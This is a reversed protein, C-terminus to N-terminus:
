TRGGTLRAKRGFGPEQDRTGTFNALYCANAGGCRSGIGLDLSYFGDEATATGKARRATTFVRLRSPLFVDIGANEKVTPIKSKFIKPPKVIATDGANAPVALLVATVVAATLTAFTRRM